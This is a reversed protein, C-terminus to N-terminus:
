GGLMGKKLSGDVPDDGLWVRLLARYFDAGAIPAGLPKGNVLAQTGSEPAFDLDVVDGKKAEKMSQMATVLQDIQPKLRAVDAEPNNAKIGDALADVLTQASLDRLLTMSVRKAGALAIADAAATKKEGLYLGAVYVNVILRKRLGAGNLVLENAGVKVRDALKVGSVEAARVGTALVACAAICLAAM